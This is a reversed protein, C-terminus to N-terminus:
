AIQLAFVSVSGSGLVLVSAGPKLPAGRTLATWATVGACPLTAAEEFSVDAPLPVVARAAVAVYEALVGDVAGGLDTLAQAPDYPGDIWGPRFPLVVRAGPLHDTVAEGCAVIEGAGDSAPVIDPRLGYPQPGYVMMLDRANLSVARIRVLVQDPGITPIAEQLRVLHDLSRPERLRYLNMTSDTLSM